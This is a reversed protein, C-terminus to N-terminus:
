HKAFILVYINIEEFEKNYKKGEATRGDVKARVAYNASFDEPELILTNVLGGFIMAATPKEKVYDKNLYKHWYELPSNRLESIASRSIAGDAHYEANSIDYIGPEMAM